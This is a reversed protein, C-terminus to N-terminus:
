QNRTIQMSEEAETAQVKPSLQLLLNCVRLILLVIGESSKYYPSRISTVTHPQSLLMNIDKLLLM